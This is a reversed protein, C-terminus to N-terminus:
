VISSCFLLFFYKNEKKQGCVLTKYGIDLDQLKNMMDLLVQKGINKLKLKSISDKEEVSM